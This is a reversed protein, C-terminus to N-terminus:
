ECAVNGEASDGVASPRLVLAMFPGALAGVGLFALGLVIVGPRGFGLGAGVVAPAVAQALGQGLGFVGSYQGQAHAPALGFQYEMAAAAHWLEGVSYIGVGALLLVAAPAPAPGASLSVLVLGGAVAAGAWLMRQGASPVDVVGKSARVQLCVVVATNLILAGSVLWRPAHTDDVIWLPLLVTPVAFHVSMAANSATAALYGRDRLAQWRGALEPRRAPALHPVRLLMLACAVYAVARAGLLVQYATRDGAEIAVGGALAGLAVALNTLARQYARFRIPDAGGFARILPGQCPNHAGTSMGILSAAVLFQWFDTVFLCYVTAVAGSLKVVIQAERAGLRDAVWGAGLSTALGLMSGCFLGVVYQSTPLGVIRIFYLASITMFVGSGFTNVFTAVSIARQAGTQPLLRRTLRLGAPLKRHQGKVVV